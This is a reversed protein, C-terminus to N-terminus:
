INELTIHKKSRRHRAINTTTIECGCSCIIKESHKQNILDKNLEYYKKSYGLYGLEYYLGINRRTNLTSNYKESYKNEKKLLKLKDINNYKRIIKFKFNDWGGNDRIFNYVKYDYENCNKNNCCYKHQAKRKNFNTTSGIYCDTINLDKCKIIYIVSM